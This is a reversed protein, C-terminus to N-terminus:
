KVTQKVQKKQKPNSTNRGNKGKSDARARMLDALM